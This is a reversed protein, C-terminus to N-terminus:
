DKKAGGYAIILHGDDGLNITRFRFGHLREPNVQRFRYYEPTVDVKTNKYGNEYVWIDAERRSFKDRKLLVSQVIYSSM